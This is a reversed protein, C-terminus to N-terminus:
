LNAHQRRDKSRRHAWHRGKATMDKNNEALTGLFLHDPRVCPPNDCHHLVCLGDPIPGVLSLWSLRHALINKGDSLRVIGYGGPNKCALWEWCGETQISVNRWLREEPTGARRWNHTAAILHDPRVCRRNGCQHGVDLGSPITGNLLTYAYRSAKLLKGSLGAKGFHGYGSGDVSALWDWCGEPSVHVKEWFRQETTRHQSKHAM